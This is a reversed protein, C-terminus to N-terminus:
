IQEDSFNGLTFIATARRKVEAKSSTKSTKGKRSQKGIPKTKEKTAKREGTVVFDRESKGGSDM